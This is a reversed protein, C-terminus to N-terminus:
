ANSKHLYIGKVKNDYAGADHYARHQFLWADATQNEDPTFIKLSNLKVAQWIAQNHVLMFNINRGTSATKSFGGADSTGGADLTVQTYFRGAPVRVVNMEDLRGLRRDFEGENTLSRTVSANLLRWLASSIFLSRGELPVDEDDLKQAAVDIAALVNSATSLAAGTTTQIDSTGAWAAFRSADIEPVVATRIYEGALTGFAMGLTEENDMRDISFARGRSKTLQITEWAGTVDGAPYGTAKDYTGMGVMSTKFIQVENAASHDLQRIQSDLFATVSASKYVEDLIPLFKEALAISNAM